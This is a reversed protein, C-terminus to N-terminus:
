EMTMGGMPQEPVMDRLAHEFRESHDTAYENMWRERVSVLPDAYGLLYKLLDPDYSDINETLEDRCFRTATIEEAKLFLLHAPLRLMKEEYAAWSEDVRDSLLACLDNREM